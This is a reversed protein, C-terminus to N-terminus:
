SEGGLREAANQQHLATAIVMKAHGGNLIAAVTSPDSIVQGRQYSGFAHLVVVANVKSTTM